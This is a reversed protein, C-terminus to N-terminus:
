EPVFELAADLIARCYAPNHLGLSRDELVNLYNWVAKAEASTYGRTTFVHDDEDILGKSLLRAQVNALRTAIDQQVADFNEQPSNSHCGVVNCGGTYDEMDEDQMHWTHGGALGSSPPDAMHCAVCGDTANPHGFSSPPDGSVVYGSLGAMVNAQSGHHPGWRFSSPYLTDGEAPIPPNAARNQHCEACLNGGGKDFTGSGDIFTVAEATRLEFDGGTHPLHCTMCAVQSSWTLGESPFEGIDVREVFGEHTHCGSCPTSKRVFTDGTNHGSDEYERTRAWLFITDNAADSHCNFCTATVEGPPGQPGTPGTAGAPGETGAPGAPGQDGECGALWIGVILSLGILSLTYAQKRNM